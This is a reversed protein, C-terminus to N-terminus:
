IQRWGSRITSRGHRLWDRMRSWMWSRRNLFHPDPARGGFQIEKVNKFGLEKCRDVIPGGIGTGDVFAITPKVGNYATNLVSVVKAAIRMSDRSEEGSIRIAPVSRADGGRRFCIETYDRGGRAIDVGVILPDDALYQGARKQAEAVRASYIFQLESAKPPLGRVRVRVFDSDVGHDEVWEDTQLRNTLASDRSDISRHNWRNREAGFVVRYFKGTNRTPNGVLIIMSEGDTLGGEAVEYIKDPVGSAEDFIYFSTSDAAHQGAFAESNEARCAQISCAWSEPQGRFYLSHKTVTFWHSNILLKAWRQVQAWTRTELQQRTSATITGRANPRTSMLWLVIWAVLTSKGVGHGSAVAMRVPLVAHLGKFSRQRVERGLALLFDRQWADPGSYNALPGGPESWPFAMLVFALPDDNCQAIEDVLEQDLNAAPTM